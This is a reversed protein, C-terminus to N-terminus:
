RVPPPGFRGVIVHRLHYESFACLEAGDTAGLELLECHGGAECAAAVRDQEVLLKARGSRAWIQADAASSADACSALIAFAGEVGAAAGVGPHSAELAEHLWCLRPKRQLKGVCCPSVVFPVGRRAALELAADSAGGCAHLSIVAECPGDYEQILCVWGSVLGPHTASPQPASAAVRQELLEISRVKIDVGVFRACAASLIALPLLLNGTGCGADILTLTGVEQAPNGPAPTFAAPLLERLLHAFAEVTARKREGRLTGVQMRRAGLSRCPDHAAPVRDWDIRPFRGM